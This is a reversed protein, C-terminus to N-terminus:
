VSSARRAVIARAMERGWNDAAYVSDIDQVPGTEHASLVEAIGDAIAPYPIKGSLFAEVLVEDAANAVAPATGGRRGAELVASFAPYQDVPLPAFALALGPLSLRAPAPSLRAPHTLAAQIPIRMDPPSLQALVTGDCLEVLAHVQAQPHILVGIRDWPLAFLHHAEIVEFAKNVLTASDITIRPGMAWVPHALAEAPAVTALTAPDRDRFAGGSATIWVREAEGPDLASLIQFLAAHESDVPIIQGERRCAGAVLEGGIVLSEKNALALTKGAALAALTPALGVAGVVANLVLDVDPLSALHCLGDRGTVVEVPLIARLRDAEAPGVVGVRAVGFERALAALADVRRGAALAVVEVPHGARRLSRVVDVAQTGISGTAGLLAVRLPTSSM